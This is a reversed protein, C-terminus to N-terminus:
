TCVWNGAVKKCFDPPGRLEWVDIIGLQEAVELYKPHSTFEVRRLIIGQWFNVAAGSWTEANPEAALIAEYYRDHFGFLLYWLDLAFQWYSANKEPLSEVVERIRSELYAQGTVPDRAGTILDRVWATDSIGIRGLDAEYHAIASEDRGLSLEFAPVFWKAFDNDLELALQLPAFAEDTQGLAAFSEGLSYIAVPSLPDIAIFQLVIRHAEQLYGTYTLEYILARVVSSNSPQERWAQKLLELAAVYSRSDGSALKHMARAFTLDSDIALARAATEYCLEQSEPSSISTGGQQWYSYALLEVAEAFNPDLEIAPLLLEIAEAGQQADLLVRAKLFLAYAEANDTPKGRTPNNSVRLQLEAIVKAAVDDQVEFIDTMTRDYTDTWIVDGTATDILEPAIRVRNGSQRVTGELIHSVGLREGIVRLDEDELRFAHSSSRGIVKLNPIRGLLGRIEDSMGEAFYEDEVDDSLNEFALVAISPSETVTIVPNRASDRTDLITWVAAGVVLVAFVALLNRRPFQVTSRPSETEAMDGVLRFGIRPITEIFKPHKADDDFAKRLEVISQTLVDDTVEMGPWIADMIEDRTVVEGNADALFVLVAMSKHKITVSEGAHTVRNLKPSVHWDNVPFDAHWSAM